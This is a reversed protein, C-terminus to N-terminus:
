IGAIPAAYIDEALPYVQDTCCLIGSTGKEYNSGDLCRFAKVDKPHYRIGSKCEIRHLKGKRVLVLDIENQNNDRYYYLPPRTIGNNLFTKRIENIVFTEVFAGSFLSRSLTEASDLRALYCALGTDSFYVKPRKVIRKTISLENYPELLYIIDGMLLISIWSKITKVDVSLAKAIKDYILEQGTMSALLEMFQRFLFKDKVHIIENVDRELYTEVYDSYFQEPKLLPNSYLEPYFGHVILEFLDQHSLPHEKGRKALLPVDFQFISEERGLIESRSLVPMHLVSIRGANSESVNQMLRYIQSGTLLYMGYNDVRKRKEENVKEEIAAFLNEAKQVEDIILPWPHLSLFLQPDRLAIECERSNDLSVYHFGQKEFLLALTTKGVQRAGTILTIPRSRVATEVVKQLSRQIMSITYTLLFFPDVGQKTYFLASIQIAELSSKM